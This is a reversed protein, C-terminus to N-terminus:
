SRGGHTGETVGWMLICKDSVSIAGTCHLGVHVGRGVRLPEGVFLKERLHRVNGRWDEYRVTM